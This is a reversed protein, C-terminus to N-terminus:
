RERIPVLLKGTFRSVITEFKKRRNMLRVTYKAEIPAVAAVSRCHKYFEANDRVELIRSEFRDLEIVGILTRTGCPGNEVGIIAFEENWPRPMVPACKAGPPCKPRSVNLRLGLTSAARDYEIYGSAVRRPVPNREDENIYFKYLQSRYVAPKKPGAALAPIAIVAALILTLFKM